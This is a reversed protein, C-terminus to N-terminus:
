PLFLSRVDTSIREKRYVTKTATSWSVGSGQCYSRIEINLFM